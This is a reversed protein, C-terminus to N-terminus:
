KSAVKSGWQDVVLTTAADGNETTPFEIEALTDADPLGEKAADTLTGAEAMAAYRAPVAGSEAYNNAGAGGLLWEVWLRAANPHPADATIPQAYYNGFVGDSPVTTRLDVGAEDMESQVGSYNYNWDFTVAAQGTELAAANSSADVLYGGKALKAFFDIGPQVDTLSGDNALAAASVTALASAGERPDGIFIKGKYQPDLLDDFTKPVDVKNADVGISLVGYYAGTWNHDPDKLNSPVEDAVSPTYQETLGQKIASETFSYGIDSVDASSSQGKLNKLSTLEEASSANPSKVTVDIGYEKEFADITKGYNAWTRPYALLTLKGEQKALKTIEALDSGVKESASADSSTACGTLLLATTALAAGAALARRFGRRSSSVSLSM